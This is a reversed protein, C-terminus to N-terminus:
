QREIKRVEVVRTWRDIERQIRARMEEPSSPAPAGGLDAFRQHTAPEALIARVERNLKDVIPKPTGPAVVLGLWSQAEIGPLTEAITPVDPLDKVRQASSVALPRARGSKFQANLFTM